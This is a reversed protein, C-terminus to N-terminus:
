RCEGPHHQALVKLLVLVSPRVGGGGSNKLREEYGSSVFSAVLVRVDTHHGKRGGRDRVRWMEKRREGREKRRRGFVAVAAVMVDCLAACHTRPHAGTCGQALHEARGGHGEEGGGRVDGVAGGRCRLLRLHNYRRRARM